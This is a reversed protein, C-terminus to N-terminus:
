KRLSDSHSLRWREKALEIALLVAEAALQGRRSRTTRWSAVLLSVLALAFGLTLVAAAAVFLIRAVTRCVTRFLIGPIHALTPQTM